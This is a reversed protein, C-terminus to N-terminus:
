LDRPLPCFSPLSIEQGMHFKTYVKPIFSPNMWLVVKDKHFICLNPHCSLAGLESSRRASTIVVFFITKLRVWKLGTNHLPEFPSKTLAHLVVNLKWTPFRHIQPPSLSEEGKLFRQILPHRAM